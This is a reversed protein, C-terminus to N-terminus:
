GGDGLDVTEEGIEARLGMAVGAYYGAGHTRTPDEVSPTRLSAPMSTTSLPTRIGRIFEM